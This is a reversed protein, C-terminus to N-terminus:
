TGGSIPPARQGTLPHQGEQLNELSWVHQVSRYGVYIVDQDWREALYDEVELILNRPKYKSLLSDKKGSILYKSVLDKCAM